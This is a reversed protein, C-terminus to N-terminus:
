ITLSPFIKQLRELLEPNSKALDMVEQPVKTSTTVSVARMLSVKGLVAQHIIGDMTPSGDSLELQPYWYDVEDHKSGIRDVRAKAQVFKESSYGKSYFVCDRAVQLNLGKDGKAQQVLLVSLEEGRFRECTDFVDVTDGRVVGHLIGLSELQRSIEDIEANFICFVVTQTHNAEREQLFEMLWNMKTKIQLVFQRQGQNDFVSEFGGSARMLRMMTNIREQRAARDVLRQLRAEENVTDKLEKELEKRRAVVPKIEQVLAKKKEEDVTGKYTLSLINIKANIRELDINIESEDRLREISGLEGTDFEEEDRFRTSVSDLFESFGGLDSDALMEKRHIAFESIGESVGEERLLDVISRGPEVSNGFMELARYIAEEEEEMPLSVINETCTPFNKSDRSIRGMNAAMKASYGFIDKIGVYKVIRPGKEIQISKKETHADFFEEFTEGMVMINRSANLQAWADGASNRVPTGNLLQIFRCAQWNAAYEIATRTTEAKPNCIAASEDFITCDWGIEALLDYHNRFAAYGLMLWGSPQDKWTELLQVRQAEQYRPLVMLHGQYQPKLFRKLESEWQQTLALPAVILNKLCGTKLAVAMTTPTKGTGPDSCNFIGSAPMVPKDWFNANARGYLHKMAFGVFKEQVEYLKMGNKFFPSCDVPEALFESERAAFYSGDSLNFKSHGGALSMITEFAFLNARTLDKMVMWNAGNPTRISDLEGFVFFETSVAVLKKRELSAVIKIEAM